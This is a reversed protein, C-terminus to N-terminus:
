TLEQQGPCGPASDPGFAMVLVPAGEADVREGVPVFGAKRYTTVARSNKPDPDVLVAEAGEALLEAARQRLFGQAHGQGLFDPDGLFMDLAMASPGFGEYQPAPWAHAPYSQLYAFPRGDPGGTWVIRMDTGGTDLDRGLLAVEAAPDGWWGGIHPEALWRRLMPYDARTVPVFRYDPRM